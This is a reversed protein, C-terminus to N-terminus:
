WEIEVKVDQFFLMAMYFVPANSILRVDYGTLEALKKLKYTLTNKHIYLADAAATLSGEAAFYAELIDIWGSLEEYACNQFLKHIYAIKMQKSIDGAFLELTVQDYSRINSSSIRASRWARNAQSYATPIDESKGDIGIALKIHYRELVMGSLKEALERIQTDTCQKVLIIQRGTNRLIMNTPIYEVVSSIDNEIQEIQKQGDATSIYKELKRVSVVMVRRPLSIDIGLTYGREALAQSKLLGNGLIWDELFRSVVRTKLRKEDQESNERILIEVMKKVIRGYDKVQEYGGTIGIVGVCEGMHIIPLNLGVRTSNTACEPTIYLEPLKEGIVRVAGEHLHGIRSKDTSAIIVGNKDMMNINQHVIGGIDNVIAQASHRTLELGHMGSLNENEM